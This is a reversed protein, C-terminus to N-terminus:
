LGGSVFGKNQPATLKVQPVYKVANLFEGCSVLLDLTIRSSRNICHFKFNKSKWTKTPKIRKNKIKKLETILSLEELYKMEKYYLRLKDRSDYKLLSIALLFFLNMNKRSIDNSFMASQCDFCILM